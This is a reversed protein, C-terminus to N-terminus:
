DKKLTKKGRIDKTGGSPVIVDNYTLSKVMLEVSSTLINIVAGPKVFGIVSFMKNLNEKTKDACDRIHSDGTLLITHKIKKNLPVQVLSANKSVTQKAIKSDSSNVASMVSTSVKLPTNCSVCGNLRVPIDFVPLMTEKNMPRNNRLFFSEEARQEQTTANSKHIKKKTTNTQKMLEKDLNHLVEFRNTTRIVTVPSKTPNSPDRKHSQATVQMLNENRSLSYIGEEHNCINTVAKDM